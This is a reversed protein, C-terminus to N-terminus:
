KLMEKAHRVAESESKAVMTKEGNDTYSCVTFGNGAKEIRVSKPRHYAVPPAAGMGAKAQAKTAKKATTKKKM